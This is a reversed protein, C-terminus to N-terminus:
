RASGPKDESPVTRNRPPRQDYTDADRQRVGRHTDRRYITVAVAFMPLLFIRSYGDLLSHDSPSAFVFLSLLLSLSLSFSFSFSLCLSPCLSFSISVSLSLFLSLLPLSISLSLILSFLSLFLSTVPYRSKEENFGCPDQDAHRLIVIRRLMSALRALYWHPEGGAHPVEPSASLVYM